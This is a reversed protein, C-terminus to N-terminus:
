KPTRAVNDTVLVKRFKFFIVKGKQNNTCSGFLFDLMPSKAVRFDRMVSLAKYKCFINKKTNRRKESEKEEDFFYLIEFM